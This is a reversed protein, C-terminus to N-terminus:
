NLLEYRIQVRTRLLENRSSALGPGLSLAFAELRLMQVGADFDLWWVIFVIHPFSKIRNYNIYLM